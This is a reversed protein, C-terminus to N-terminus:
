QGGGGRLDSLCCDDIMRPSKVESVSRQYYVSRHRDVLSM